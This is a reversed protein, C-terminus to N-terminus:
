FKNGQDVYETFIKEQLIQPNDLYLIATSGLIFFHRLRVFIDIVELEKQLEYTISLYGEVFKNMTNKGLDKELSLLLKWKFTALDYLLYSYGTLEFDLFSIKNNDRLLYNEPHLDGHAVGFRLNRLTTLELSKKLEFYMKDIKEIFIKSFCNKAAFNKIRNYPEDLLFNICLNRPPVTSKFDQSIKHFKALEEGMHRITDPAVDTYNCVKGPIYSYVIYYKKYEPTSITNILSGKIDKIPKPASINNQCLFEQFNVEFMYHEMSYPWCSRITYVKVIYAEDKAILEYIDNSGGAKIIRCKFIKNFFYKKPIIKLIYEPSLISRLIKM